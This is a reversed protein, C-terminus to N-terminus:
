PTLASDPVISESSALPNGQKRLYQPTNAEGQNVYPSFEYGQRGQKKLTWPSLRADGGMEAPTLEPEPVSKPYFNRLNDAAPRVAPSLGGRFGSAEGIDSNQIIQAAIEAPYKSQTMEVLMAIDRQATEHSIIGKRLPELVRNELQWNLTVAERQIYFASAGGETEAQQEFQQTMQPTMGPLWEVPKTRGMTGSPDYFPSNPSAMGVGQSAMQEQTSPLAWGAIEPPIGETNVYQGGTDQGFSAQAEIRRLKRTSGSITPIPSRFSDELAGAGPTSGGYSGPQTGFGGLGMDQRSRLYKEHLQSLYNPDLTPDGELLSPDIGVPQPQDSYPGQWKLDTQDGTRPINQYAPPIGHQAGGSGTTKEKANAVSDMLLRVIDYTAIVGVVPLLYQELPKLFQAIDGLGSAERKMRVSAAFRGTLGPTISEGADAAISALKILLIKDANPVFNPM